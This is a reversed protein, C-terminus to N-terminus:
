SRSCTTDTNATVIIIVYKDCCSTIECQLDNNIILCIFFLLVIAAFFVFIAGIGDPAGNSDIPGSYEILGIRKKVVRAM